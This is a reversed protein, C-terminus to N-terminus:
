FYRPMKGPDKRWYLSLFTVLVGNHLEVAVSDLWGRELRLIFNTHTQQRIRDIQIADMGRTDRLLSGLEYTIEWEISNGLEDCHLAYYCATSYSQERNLYISCSQM